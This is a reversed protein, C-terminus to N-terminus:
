IKRQDFINQIKQLRQEGSYVIKLRPCSKFKLQLSIVEM